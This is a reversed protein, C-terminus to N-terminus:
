NVPSSFTKNLECLAV